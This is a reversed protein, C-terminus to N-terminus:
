VFSCSCLLVSVIRLFERMSGSFFSVWCVCELRAVGVALVGDSFIAFWWGQSFSCRWPKSALAMRRRAGSDLVIFSRYGRRKWSGIWCCICFADSQLLDAELPGGGRHQARGRAPLAGSPRSDGAGLVLEDGGCGWCGWPSALLFWASVFSPALSLLEAPCGVGGGHRGDGSCRAGGSGDIRSSVEGSARRGCGAPCRRSPSRAGADKNWRAM